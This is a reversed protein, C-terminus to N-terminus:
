NIMINLGIALGTCNGLLLGASFGILSFKVKDSITQKKQLKYLEKYYEVEPQLEVTAQKYGEQYANQISIDSEELIVDILAQVETGTYTKTLDIGLDNELNRSNTKSTQASLTMTLVTILLILLLNKKLNM